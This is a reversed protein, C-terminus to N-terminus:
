SLVQLTILVFGASEDRKGPKNFSAWVKKMEIQGQTKYLNIANNINIILESQCAESIFGEDYTQLLIRPFDAPMHVDFCMRYNYIGKGDEINSHTDTKKSENNEDFDDHIMTAKVYLSVKGNDSLPIDRTEWIILRVQYNEVTNPAILQEPPNLRHEDLTVIECWM